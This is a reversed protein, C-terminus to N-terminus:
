FGKYAIKLGKEHNYPLENHIRELQKKFANVRCIDVDMGWAYGHTCTKEDNINWATYECNAMAFGGCANCKTAYLYVSENVAKNDNITTERASVFDKGSVSLLILTILFFRKM